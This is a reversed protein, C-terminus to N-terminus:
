TEQELRCLEGGADTLTLVARFPGDPIEAVGLAARQGPVLDVLGGQAVDSSGGAGQATITFDYTGHVAREAHAVAELRLGRSTRTARIDCSLAASTDAWGREGPQAEAFLVPGSEASSVTHLSAPTQAACATVLALAAGITPKLM